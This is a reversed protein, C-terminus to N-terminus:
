LDNCFSERGFDLSPPAGCPRSRLGERHNGTAVPYGRCPEWFERISSSDSGLRYPRRTGRLAPLGQSWRIGDM